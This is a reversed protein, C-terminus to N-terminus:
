GVEQSDLSIRGRTAMKEAIVFEVSSARLQYRMQLDAPCPTNMLTMVDASPSHQTEHADGPGWSLVSGEALVPNRRDGNSRDGEQDPQDRHQTAAAEEADAIVVVITHVVRRGSSKHVAPKRVLIEQQEM